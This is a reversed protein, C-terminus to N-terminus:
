PKMVSGVAAALLVGPSVRIIDTIAQDRPLGASSLQWTDGGSESVYVGHWQAAFLAGDAAVVQFTYQALDHPLGAQASTWSRGGDVSRVVGHGYLLAFVSAGDAGLNHPTAGQYVREWSRGEDRSRAVGQVDAVYLVGQLVVVANTQGSGMLHRWSAAADESVFLGGNTAAFLRKGSTVLRRPERNELGQNAAAWTKGADASAFVGDRRTGAVLVNSTAALATLTVGKGLTAVVQLWRRGADGSVFVGDADTSAFVADHALAFDNVTVRRPLGVDSALWTRGRDSSAYVRAGPAPAHRLASAPTSSTGSASSAALQRRNPTAHRDCSLQWGALGVLVAFRLAPWPWAPERGIFLWAEAELCCHLVLRDAGFNGSPTAQLGPGDLAHQADRNRKTVQAAKGTPCCTM